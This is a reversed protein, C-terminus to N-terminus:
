DVVIKKPIIKKKENRAREKGLNELINLLNEYLEENSYEKTMLGTKINIYATIVEREVEGQLCNTYFNIDSVDLNEKKSAELGWLKLIKPHLTGRENESSYKTNIIELLNFDRRLDKFNKYDNRLEAGTRTIFRTIEIENEELVEDETLIFEGRRIYYREEEMESTLRLKLIYKNEEEPMPIKYIKNMWYLNGKYKVVGKTVIIKRKEIESIIDFGKIIGDKKNLYMLNLLEESNDRLLSLQRKDILSGKKFIPYKNEFM